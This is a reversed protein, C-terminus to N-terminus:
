IVGERKRLFWEMSLLLLILVFVWKVDVLDSYRKDEYVVTKVNENKRILNALQGIQSPQIMQGGSQKAITRLLQHNAASQRAELNLPKVTLQGSSNFVRDGNKTSASYTYEGVPLTGANLQYNQNVRTFLFSYDKGKESKLNIKVDPTNILELADNYLEANLLVNEGEDFVRKSPYVIFRQRSANATLYQVGQGFLEELSHHNGYKQFEALQWRWLGEGTLVAVREGGEDGFSLLPYSTEVSGIRQKLLTSGSLPSSYSGYPALLPPFVAIKNRTSDSLTFDTFDATPQAFVEQMQEQGSSIKVLQQGQDFAQLNSQAGVMYWVPVKAKILNQLINNGTASVQFLILLSYDGPKVSALDALFSTKVEYNKNNQISQRIASVDPHPGDYVLLIKQKADLVDVYITETNNQTSVENQVPAISINFKRTGKKDANLKLTVAKHFDNSNIEMNQASVQRGDETVSLHMTEGKAQYAEALVEIEFDNGLFATKNYNVNGMLLDRKAITDGLAITYITSKINRAEYQPDTGRNYLGDTALVVAGINQNVFRENLQHLANAIDTQKGSFDKTLGDAVDKNFHFERVDYDSGLEKKLDSLADLTEGGAPPPYKSPAFLKISQSNDQLVLVLPKQPNYSVTKVLPSLLLLAIISVVVARGAFLLYRFKKDLSVPQKYLLWGYLIGLVLCAPAWWGSVTGWTISFLLQM